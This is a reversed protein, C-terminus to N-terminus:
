TFWTQWTICNISRIGAKCVASVSVDQPRYFSQPLSSNLLSTVSKAICSGIPSAATTSAGAADAAASSGSMILGSGARPTDPAHGAELVGGPYADSRQKRNSPCGM